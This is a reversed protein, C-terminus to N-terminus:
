AALAKTHSKIWTEAEERSQMGERLVVDGQMVAWKHKHGRWLPRFAAEAPASLEAASRLEVTWIPAVVAENASCARVILLSVWIGADDMAEIRDLPRLKGAVHSWFGPELIVSPDTGSEVLVAHTRWMAEAPRMRGPLLIRNNESM